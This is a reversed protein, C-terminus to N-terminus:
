EGYCVLPRHQRLTTPQNRLRKVCVNEWPRERWLAHIPSLSTLNTNLHIHLNHIVPMCMYTNVHAIITKCMVSTPNFFIRFICFHM